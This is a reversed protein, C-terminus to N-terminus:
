LVFLNVSNRHNSCLCLVIPLNQVFRNSFSRKRVSGTVRKCFPWWGASFNLSDVSFSQYSWFGQTSIARLHRSQLKPAHACQVAHRGYGDVLLSRFAALRFTNAKRKRFLDFSVKNKEDKKAFYEKRQRKQAMAGTKNFKKHEETLARLQVM